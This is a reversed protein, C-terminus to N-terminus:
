IIPHSPLIHRVGNNGWHRAKLALAPVAWGFLSHDFFIGSEDRRSRKKWTRGIRAAVAPLTVSNRALMQRTLGYTRWRAANEVASSLHATARNIASTPFSPLM